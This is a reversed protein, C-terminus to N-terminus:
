PLSPYDVEPRHSFRRAIRPYLEQRVQEVWEDGPEDGARRVLQTWVEEGRDFFEWSQREIEQEYAVQDDGQLDAPRESEMLADGFAVLCEGIRTAAARNWPAVEHSAASRYEKLANELLSKKQAIAPALPLVLRAADFRAKAEEGRLFAVQATLDASASDPHAKALDTWRKLASPEAGRPPAALLTSVPRARGVLAVERRARRELFALAATV